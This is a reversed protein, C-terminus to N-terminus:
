VSIAKSGSDPEDPSSVRKSEQAGKTGELPDEGTEVWARRRRAAIARQTETHKVYLRFAEPTSHGSLSMGSQETVEADGIETM